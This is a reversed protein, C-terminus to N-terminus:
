LGAAAGSFTTLFFGGAIEIQGSSPLMEFVVGRSGAELPRGFNKLSSTMQNALLSFVEPNLGNADAVTLLLLESSSKMLAM